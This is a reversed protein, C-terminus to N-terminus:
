AKKQNCQRTREIMSVLTARGLRSYNAIGLRKALEKVKNGSLEGPDIDPHMLMWDALKIRGGDLIIKEVEKKQEETSAEYLREFEDKYIVAEVSRLNLINRHVKGRLRNLEVERGM